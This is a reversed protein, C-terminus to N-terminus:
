PTDSTVPRLSPTRTPATSHSRIAPTEFPARSLSSRRPTRSQLTKETALDTFYEAEKRAGPITRWDEFAPTPVAHPIGLVLNTYPKSIRCNM